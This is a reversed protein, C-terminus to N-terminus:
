EKVRELTFLGLKSGKTVEFKTPRKEGGPRTSCLRVTDADVVELISLVAKKDKVTM